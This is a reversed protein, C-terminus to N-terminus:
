VVEQMRDPVLTEAEKPVLPLSFWFTSGRGLRSEAGITGGHGLVIQRCLYLGLGLGTPRRARGGQRYREFLADCDAQAMGAGNDRVRCYIHSDDLDATVVINIGPPNHKLANNLLNEFVRRIQAPDVQIAPLDGSILCTLTAAQAQVQVQFHEVIEEVFDRLAVAEYHLTLGKVEARHTELLLDILALQHESAQLMRHITARPVEVLAENRIMWRKLLLTTGAVPTRLDHSIAYLFDEKVQSLEELQRIKNQLEQTRSCVQHELSENLDHLSAHAAQLDILAQALAMNAEQIQRGQIAIKRAQLYSQLAEAVTLALDDSQWPKMVYRYLRASRIARAVGELDAQGSIMITLTQPSREHIRQLLADGRLGPMIYDALVLAVEYDEQQLEDFLELAEEGDEAAEVLCDDGLVRRLETKLSTLVIPEDDVCIIVPKNM